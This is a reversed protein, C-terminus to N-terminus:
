KLDLEIEKKACCFKYKQCSGCPCPSYPDILNRQQKIAKKPDTIDEIAEFGIIYDLGYTGCIEAVKRAREESNVKVIVPRQESGLLPMLNM